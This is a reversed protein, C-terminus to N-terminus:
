IDIAYENIIKELREVLKKEKNHPMRKMPESETTSLEKLEAIHLNM